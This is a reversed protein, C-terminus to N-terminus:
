LVSTDMKSSSPPTTASTSYSDVSGPETNETGTSSVTTVMTLDNDSTDSKSIGTTSSSSVSSNNAGKPQSVSKEADEDLEHRKKRLWPVRREPASGFVVAGDLNQFLDRHKIANSTKTHLVQVRNCAHHPGCICPDYLMGQTKWYIGPALQLPESTIDGHQTCIKKLTSVCVTLYEEGAPIDKWSTCVSKDPTPVILSEFGAGFLTMAGIGRAFNVWSKGSKKLSHQKPRIPFTSDVIDMFTYGELTDHGPLRLQIDPSKSLVEQHEYMKELSNWTEVVLDKFYYHKIREIRKETTINNVTERETYTGEIEKDILLEMNKILAAAATYGGPRTPSAYIFQQLDLMDTSHQDAILSTCALHLLASAGDMLWGRDTQTDYLIVHKRGAYQVMRKYTGGPNRFWVAQDKTGKGFTASGTINGVAPFSLGGQIVANKLVYGAPTINM